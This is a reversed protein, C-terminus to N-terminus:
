VGLNWIFKLDLDWSGFVPAPSVPRVGIRGQPASVVFGLALSIELAARPVGGVRDQARFPHSFAGGAGDRGEGGELGIPELVRVRWEQWAGKGRRAVARPAGKPLRREEWTSGSEM